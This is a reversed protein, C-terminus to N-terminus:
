MGMWVLVLRACIDIQLMMDHLFLLETLPFRKRDETINGIGDLAEM